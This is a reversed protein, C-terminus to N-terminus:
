VRGSEGEGGGDSVRREASFRDPDFREPNRFVVDPADNPLNMSVALPAFVYHNEPVVYDGVVLPKHVKRMLMILPPYQRLVEKMCQHLFDLRQVSDLNISAPTGAISAGLVSVQGRTCPLPCPLLPPRPQCLHSPQAHRTVRVQEAMARQMYHAHKGHLLNLLIWTSSISSTHQGAFLTGLLMGTIQDDTCRSGDKYEADIFAQLMDDPKDGGAERRGRIVGGFLRGIEARAADRRSRRFPPSPSLPPPPQQALQTIRPLHAHTLCPPHALSSVVAPPALAHGHPGSQAATLVIVRSPTKAHLSVVVNPCQPLPDCPFPPTAGGDRSM